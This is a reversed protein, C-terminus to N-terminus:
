SLINDWNNHTMFDSQFTRKKKKQMTSDRIIRSVELLPIFEFPYLWKSQTRNRLELLTKHSLYINLPSLICNNPCQKYKFLEKHKTAKRVESLIWGRFFCLWTLIYTSEAQIGQVQESQFQCFPPPPPVHVNKNKLYKELM